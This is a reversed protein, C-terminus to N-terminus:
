ITKAYERLYKFPFPIVTLENNKVFLVNMMELMREFNIEKGKFSTVKRISIAKSFKYHPNGLLGVFYYIADEFKYSNINLSSSYVPDLYKKSKVYKRGKELEERITLFDPITFQKTKEIILIDDDIELLGELNKHMKVINEYINFKNYNFVNLKEESFSIYGDRTVNMFLYKPDKSNGVNLGFVLDKEFNLKKWDFLQIKKNKLDKKIFLEQVITNVFSEVDSNNDTTIHQIISENNKDKLYPDPSNEVEYIKKDRIIIINIGRKNLNKRVSIEKNFKNIFAEKIKEILIKSDENEVRDIVAVNMEEIQNKLLELNQKKASYESNFTAIRQYENIEHLKFIFYNKFEFNLRDFIISLIGIKSKYFNKSTSVDLFCINSKHKNTQRIVYTDKEDIKENPRIRRLTNNLGFTYKPLKVIEKEKEYNNLGPKFNLSKKMKLSTFTRAELALNMNSDISIKLASIKYINKKNEFLSTDYYYFQGTLNLLRDKKLEKHSLSNLFLQFLVNKFINQSSFRKISLSEDKDTLQNIVKLNNFDKKMLVYFSKGWTFVVSYINNFSSTEDFLYIGKDFKDKTTSVEFIDFDEDIKQYNFNIKLNNTKVPYM